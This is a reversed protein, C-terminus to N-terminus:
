RSRLRGSFFVGCLPLTPGPLAGTPRPTRTEASVAGPTQLSSQSPPMGEGLVMRVAEWGM